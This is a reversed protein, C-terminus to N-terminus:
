SILNPFDPCLQSRTPTDPLIQCYFELKGNEKCIWVEKAGAGFYLARKEEIASPTNSPSLVEVCIEPAK